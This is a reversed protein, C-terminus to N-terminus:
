AGRRQRVSLRQEAEALLCIAHAWLAVSLVLLIAGSILASVLSAADLSLVSVGLRTGGLKFALVPLMVGPFIGLSLVTLLVSLAPGPLEAGVMKGIREGRFIVYAAGYLGLTLGNALYCRTRSSNFYSFLASVERDCM